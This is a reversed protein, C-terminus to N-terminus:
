EMILRFEPVWVWPNEAWGNGRKLNGDYWLSEFALRAVHSTCLPGGPIEDEWGDELVGEAKANAETIDQVREVRMSVIEVITRSAWQPMNMSSRKEWRRMEGDEPNDDTAVYRIHDLINGSLDDAIPGGPSRTLEYWSPDVRDIEYGDDIYEGDEYHGPYLPEICIREHWFTEPVWFRDGPRGFPCPYDHFESCFGFCTVCERMADPVDGCIIAQTATSVDSDVLKVARRDQTKTGDRIARIMADPFTFPYRKM